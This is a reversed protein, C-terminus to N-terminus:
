RKCPIVDVVVAQLVDSLFGSLHVGDLDCRLHLFNHILIYPL